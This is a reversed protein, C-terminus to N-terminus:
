ISLATLNSHLWHSFFHPLGDCPQIQYSRILYLPTVDQMEKMFVIIEGKMLCRTVRTARYAACCRPQLMNGLVPMLVSRKYQVGQLRSYLTADQM